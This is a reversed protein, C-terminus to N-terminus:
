GLRVGRGGFHRFGPFRVGPGANAQGGAQQYNNNPMAYYKNVFREFFAPTKLFNYKYPSAPLVDKLFIYLHGSAIGILDAIVNGGTIVSYAMIAWPLYASNFVFGFMFQIREMPEKKCWIYLIAFTLQTGMYQYRDFLISIVLIFIMNVIILWIFEPIRNPSFFKELKSFGFYVFILQFLFQFSFRGYVFYNTFLTWIKYHEFLGEYTLLLNAYSVLSLSMLTTTVFIGVMYSRTIKPLKNFWDQFDM